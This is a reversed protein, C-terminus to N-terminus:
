RVAIKEKIYSIYAELINIDTLMSLTRSGVADEIENFILKGDETFMFDIGVLGFDYADIIKQITRIETKNLTYM